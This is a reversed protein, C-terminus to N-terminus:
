NMYKKRKEALKNDADLILSMLEKRAFKFFKIDWNNNGNLFQNPEGQKQKLNLLHDTYIRTDMGLRDMMRIREELQYILKYDDIGERIAEWRLTALPGEPDPYSLFVERSFTDAIGPVGSANQTNQFTWTSMGDIGKKWVYFGYRYRAYSPNIASLAIANDYMWYRIGRKRAEYFQQDRFKGTCLYDIM